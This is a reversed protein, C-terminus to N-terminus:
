YLNDPGYLAKIFGSAFLSLPAGSLMMMLKWAVVDFFKPGRLWFMEKKRGLFQQKALFHM